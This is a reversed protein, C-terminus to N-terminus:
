NENWNGKHSQLKGDKKTMNHMTKQQTKPHQCVASIEKDVLTRVLM